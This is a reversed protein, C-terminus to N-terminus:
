RVQNRTDTFHYIAGSPSQWAVAHALLHVPLQPPVSGGNREYRSCAIPPRIAEFSEDREPKPEENSVYELPPELPPELQLDLGIRSVAKHYNLPM